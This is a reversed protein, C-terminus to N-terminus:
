IVSLTSSPPFDFSPTAAIQPLFSFFLSDGGSSGTLFVFILSPSLESIIERGSSVRHSQPARPAAM